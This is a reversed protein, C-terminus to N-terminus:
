RRTTTTHRSRWLRGGSTPSTTKESENDIIKGHVTYRSIHFVVGLAVMIFVLSTGGFSLLPLTIGTLPVLGVMAGINLLSHTALWGFVGAIILRSTQDQTRDLISLLRLLLASIFLLIAVLGFFGFSEGMVVFISDNPAEPLYGFAQVNKGLGLGFLGGTGLAIKAQNIHYSSGRADGASDGGIFTTVRELRHPAIVIFLVSCAVLAVGVLIGNKKNLGAVFLMSSVIGLLALGTGMDKQFGIIFVSAVAVLIGLPILTENVDNVKGAQVKHALFGATFLLMGFKVFEAPQFTTFGLNFWRCAGGTCLALPVSFAGLIVLLTCLGLAAIILKSAYKQWMKLPVAAAVAFATIGIVLYLLQRQMFHTQDLTAGDNTNLLEVRAPSIAYLVILGILLLVGVFVVIQYDPRHKRVLEGVSRRESRGRRPIM